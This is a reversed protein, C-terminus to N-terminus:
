GDQGIWTREKIPPAILDLRELKTLALDIELGVRKANFKELKAANHSGQITSYERSAKEISRMISHERWNLLFGTKMKKLVWSALM